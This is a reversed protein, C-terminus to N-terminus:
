STILYACYMLFMHIATHVTNIQGRELDFQHRRGGIVVQRGEALQSVAAQEVLHLFAEAVVLDVYSRLLLCPDSVLVCLASLSLCVTYERRPFVPDGYSNIQLQTSLQKHDPSKLSHHKYRRWHESYWYLPNGELSHEYQVHLLMVFM